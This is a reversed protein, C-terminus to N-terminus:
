QIAIEWNYKNLYEIDIQVKKYYRQLKYVKEWGYKNVIDAEVFFLTLKKNTSRNIREDWTPSYSRIIGNKNFDISDLDSGLYPKKFTDNESFLLYINGRTKNRVILERNDVPDCSCFTVFLTFSVIYLFKDIFNKERLKLFYPKIM